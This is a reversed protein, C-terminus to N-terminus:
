KEAMGPAIMKFGAIFKGKSTLDVEQKDRMDSINKATFIYTAPPIFGKIANDILFEKQLQKCSNYAESFEPYKHKGALEKKEYDKPWKVDVWDALADHSVGIKRAFKAFTPLDNTQYMYETWIEKTGNSKITTKESKVVRNFKVCDFFKIMEEAYQPKYKTPRGGPHKKPAVKKKKTKEM